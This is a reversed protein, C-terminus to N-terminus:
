AGAATSSRLARAWTALMSVACRTTKRLRSATAQDAALINHDVLTLRLRGSRHLRELDIEDIFPLAAVDVGLAEFLYVAETRLVFDGRPCNVVPVTPSGCASALFGYLVASVMSDLDAAENGIVIAGAEAKDVSARASKLYSNLTGVRNTM